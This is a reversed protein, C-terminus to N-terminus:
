SELFGLRPAADERRAVLLRRNRARRATIKAVAAFVAAGPAANLVAASSLLAGDEPSGALVGTSRAGSEPM